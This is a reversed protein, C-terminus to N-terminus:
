LVLNVLSVVCYKIKEQVVLYSKLHDFSHMKQHSFLLFNLNYNISFKM